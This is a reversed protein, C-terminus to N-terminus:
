LKGQALPPLAVKGPQVPLAVRGSRVFCRRRRQGGGLLCRKAARQSLRPWGNGVEAKAFDAVGAAIHAIDRTAQVEAAWPM